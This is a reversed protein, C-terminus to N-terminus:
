SKDRPSPSTYLLCAKGAAEGVAILVEILNRLIGSVQGEDATVLVDQGSTTVRTEPHLLRVRDLEAYALQGLSVPALDLEVGADLRAAALLDSILTGARQAERILLSQLKERDAAPLSDGHHLLTEAAALVGTIPTRLEHAADARDRICM